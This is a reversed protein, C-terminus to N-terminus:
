FLDAVPGKQNDMWDSLKDGDLYIVCCSSLVKEMQDSKLRCGTALHLTVAIKATAAPANIHAAISCAVRCM